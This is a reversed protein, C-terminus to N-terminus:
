RPLELVGSGRKELYLKTCVYLQVVAGSVALPLPPSFGGFEGAGAMWSYRHYYVLLVRM